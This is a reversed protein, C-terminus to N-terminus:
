KRRELLYVGRRELLRDRYPVKARLQWERDSENPASTSLVYSARAYQKKLFEFFAAHMRNSGVYQDVASSGVVQAIWEDFTGYYCSWTMDGGIDQLAAGAAHALEAARWNAEARELNGRTWLTSASLMILCFVFSLIKCWRPQASAMKGLLVVTFPLFQILYTDYFQVYLLQLILSAVGAFVVFWEEGSILRRDPQYFYRRLFLAGLVIAILWTLCTVVTLLLLQKFGSHFFPTYTDRLLWDLYPMLFHHPWLLWRYGVDSIVYISCIAVIWITWKLRRDSRPTETGPGDGREPSTLAGRAIM